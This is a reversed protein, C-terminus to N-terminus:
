STRRETAAAQGRAGDLRDSPQRRRGRGTDGNFYEHLPILGHWNPDTQFLQNTGFVPRRGSADNLFIRSLRRSIEEAVEWLTMVRGSGGALGDENWRYARSRAHDHPFYDWTTGGPSYDGPVSGWARDSLYPGWRKWHKDQLRAEELRDADATPEM